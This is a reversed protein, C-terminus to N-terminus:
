NWSSTYFIFTWVFSFRFIYTEHTKRLKQSWLILNRIEINKLNEYTKSRRLYTKVWIRRRLYTKIAGLVNMARNKHEIAHDLGIASHPVTSKNM